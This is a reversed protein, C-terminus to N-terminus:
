RLCSHEQCCGRDDRHCLCALGVVNLEAIARETVASPMILAMGVGCNFVTKLEEEDLKGAQALWAQIAPVQWAAYDLNSTLGPPLVRPLNGPLGGGSVHVAAHLDIAASRLTRLAPVYIPTPTLLADAFTGAGFPASLQTDTRKLIDHVLSFGNSHVGDTLIGVIADGDQVRASGLLEQREALGVAFGVLDLEGDKLAGPLQATEGGVLACGTTTCAATIGDIVQDALARDFKACGYYDLFFWPQAGMCALDNVCVAVLDHGATATRDAAILMRVKTGVGDCSAVIVPERMAAPVQLAAAFSGIGALLGPVCTGAVAQINKSFKAAAAQDVGAALYGQTPLTSM